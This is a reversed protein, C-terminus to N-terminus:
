DIYRPRNSRDDNITSPDSEAPFRRKPQQGRLDTRVNSDHTRYLPRSVQLPPDPPTDCNAAEPENAVPRRLCERHDHIRLPSGSAICIATPYSRVRTRAPIFMDPEAPERYSWSPKRGDADLGFAADHPQRKALRQHFPDSGAVSGSKAVTTLSRPSLISISPM